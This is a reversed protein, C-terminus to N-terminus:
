ISISYFIRTEEGRIEKHSMKEGILKDITPRREREEERREEQRRKNQRKERWEDSTTEKREEVNKVMDKRTEVQRMVGEKDQRTEERRM